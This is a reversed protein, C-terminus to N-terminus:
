KEVTAGLTEIGQGWGKGKRARRMITHRLRPAMSGDSKVPTFDVEEVDRFGCAEYLRHGAMTGEVWAPVMLHDALECGWKVLLAGAGLRQFDPDTYLLSLLVHSHGHMYEERQSMIKDMIQESVAKEEGELWDVHFPTLPAPMPVWNAYIQWHAVGALRGTGAEVAKLWVSGAEEQMDKLVRERAKENSVEDDHGLIAVRADLAAFARHQLKIHQQVDAETLRTIIFRAM